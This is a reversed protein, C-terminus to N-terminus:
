NGKENKREKKRMNHWNEESEWFIINDLMEQSDVVSEITKGTKRYHINEDYVITDGIKFEPLKM